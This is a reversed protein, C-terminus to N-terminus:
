GRKFGRRRKSFQRVLIIAVVAALVYVSFMFVDHWFQTSDSVEVIDPLLKETDNVQINITLTDENGSADAIYFEFVYTGPADRNDKYTDTLIYIETTSTYTIMQVNVLVDIIDNQTLLFNKHLIITYEELTQTVAIVEGITSRVSVEITKTIVQGDVGLEVTYIGPVDGFGTYNDNLVEIEGLTSSYLPLITSLTLVRDSEKYIVDPGVIDGEAAYSFPSLLIIAFILNFLILLKKM